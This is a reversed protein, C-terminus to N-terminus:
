NSKERWSRMLMKRGEELVVVSFSVLIAIGWDIAVLPVTKFLKQMVPVYLLACLFLLVVITAGVLWRNSFIGVSVISKTESRCNWANFWQFMCMTVLTMTQAYAINEKYYFTFIFFSGLGMPIAMFLAKAALARDVLGIHKDFVGEALLEKDHPEMSLASDLFGDTVLNIWLIHAATLPLPLTAVMTFFIILIEGMNTAFFYLIVRRLTYISHRGESIANIISVFSDDLLIIDAAQKAVETGIRGMAIGLDAAVLSPADNIGDGTMAVIAGKQHFADIIRMKQKPCVRAYVTINLLQEQLEQDSLADLGEGEVILDGPRYLGVSRAVYLATAKHDGTAMVVHLQAAQAQAIVAHVEPRIADQIACLGLFQVGNNILEKFLSVPSDTDKEGIPMLSAAIKKVGVAVVRLGDGLLGQLEAQVNSGVAACRELVSEPSGIIYAVLEDGHKFFAAHYKLDSDFPIEYVKEYEQKYQQESLGLKQACVYLAAETPDGKIDFLQVEPLFSITASNLLLSAIGIQAIDSKAEITDVKKGDKLVDGEVHYGQGTIRWKVNDAFFATVMMENRTLTGTKDLVIVDVRGFAEVAQLSKVLVQQQAMRYAGSVLVLTLVVPLGEPIVCVFLATLMIVLESLPKNTVLGVIFLFLCVGFIFLLIFYSLREVEKKLPVDTRIGEITGYIAGLETEIGTAVIVAKGSGAMSYTGEFVMNTRDAVSAYGKLADAYKHQPKSEGTLVSEDVQLNNSVIIRADVPIREGEQLVIIDGKVLSSVSVVKKKGDRVVVATPRVLRKLSELIIGARGEQITGIIANFLIVGSIIFADSKDQGVIFILVAAILLIYILPSAFQSLFIFIWSKRAVGPVINPGYARLRKQHEQESLGREGDTAYLQIVEQVTQQYPKIM